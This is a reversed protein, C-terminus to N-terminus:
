APHSAAQHGEFAYRAPLSGSLYSKLADPRLPAERVQSLPLWQFEKRPEPSLVHGGEERPAVVLDASFFLVLEHRQPQGYVVESAFLLNGVKIEGGLEERFERELAEVCNEGPDVHGGPLAYYRSGDRTTGYNALLCGNHLIVARAILEHSTPHPPHSDASVFDPASMPRPTPGILPWTKEM